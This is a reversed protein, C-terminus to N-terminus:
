VAPGKTSIGFIDILESEVIIHLEMFILRWNTNGDVFHGIRARYGTYLFIVRLDGM